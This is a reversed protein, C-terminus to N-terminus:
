GIACLFSESNGTSNTLNRASSYTEKPLAKNSCPTSPDRRVKCKQVFLGLLFQVIKATEKVSRERYMSAM